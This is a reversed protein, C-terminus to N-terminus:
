ASALAIGNKRRTMRLVGGVMGVGLLMVAWTAPEPVGAARVTFSAVPANDAQLGTCYSEASSVCFSYVKGETGNAFINYDLGGAEFAIGARDAFLPGSPTLENDASGYSNVGSTFPVGDLTGAVNTVDYITPGGTTTFEGSVDATTSTITFDFVAAQAPATVLTLGIAVLASKAWLGAKSM